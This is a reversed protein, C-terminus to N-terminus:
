PKAETLEGTYTIVAEPKSIRPTMFGPESTWTIRISGSVVKGSKIM